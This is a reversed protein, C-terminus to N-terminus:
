ESLFTKLDTLEIGQYSNGSYNDNTIVMIRYNDIIRRLIEFEREM